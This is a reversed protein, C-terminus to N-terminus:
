MRGNTTSLEVALDNAGRQVPPPPADPGPPDLPAWAHPRGMSWHPEDV